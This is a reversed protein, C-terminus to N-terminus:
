PYVFVLILYNNNSKNLFFRHLLPWYIRVVGLLPVHLKITDKAPGDRGPVFGVDEM